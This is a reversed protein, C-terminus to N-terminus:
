FGESFSGAFGLVTVGVVLFAVSWIRWEQAKTVIVQTACNQDWSTIEGRGLKSHANSMAILTVLPLGLGYGMVYVQLDRKLATALDLREGNTKIARLGAL